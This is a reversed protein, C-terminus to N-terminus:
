RNFTEAPLGFGRRWARPLGRIPGSTTPLNGKGKVFADLFITVPTGSAFFKDTIKKIDVRLDGSLPTGPRSNDSLYGPLPTSARAPIPTHVPTPRQVIVRITKKPPSDTFADLIDDSPDLETPSEVESLFVAKRETPPPIPISVHWLTLKDAAIDDFEPTKETKIMKKLEDITDNSPIKISFPTAEGNVLCFLTRHNDTM